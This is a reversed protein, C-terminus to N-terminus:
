IKVHGQPAIINTAAEVFGGNLTCIQWSKSSMCDPYKACTSLIVKAIVITRKVHSWEFLLVYRASLASEPRKHLYSCNHPQQMLLAQELEALRLLHQSSEDHLRLLTENYYQDKIIDAMLAPPSQVDSGNQFDEFSLLSRSHHSTVIFDDNKTNTNLLSHFFMFLLLVTVHLIDAVVYDWSIIKLPLSLSSCGLIGGYLVLLVERVGVM